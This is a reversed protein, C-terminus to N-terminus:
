LEIKYQVILQRCKFGVFSVIFFHEVGDKNM